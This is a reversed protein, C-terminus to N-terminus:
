LELHSYLARLAEHYESAAADLVLGGPALNVATHPGDRGPVWATGGTFHSQLQYAIEVNGHKFTRRTM